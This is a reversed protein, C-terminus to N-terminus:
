ATCCVVVTHPPHSHAPSLGDVPEVDFGVRGLVAEVRPDGGDDGDGQGARAVFLDERAGLQLQEDVEVLAEGLELRAHQAGPVAGGEVQREQGVAGRQVPQREAESQPVVRRDRHSACRERSVTAGVPGAPVVVPVEVGVAEVAAVDTGRQPDRARQLRDGPEDAQRGDLDVAGADVVEGVLREVGVRRAVSAQGADEGLAPPARSGAEDIADCRLVGFRRGDQETSPHSATGAYRM